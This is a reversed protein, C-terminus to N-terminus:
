RRASRAAGLANKARSLAIAAIRERLNSLWPFSRPRASRARAHKVRDHALRVRAALRELQKAMVSGEEARCAGGLAAVQLLEFYSAVDCILLSFLELIM